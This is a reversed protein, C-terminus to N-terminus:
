GLRHRARCVPARDGALDDLPAPTGAVARALRLLVAHVAAAAGPDAWPAHVAGAGPHATAGLHFVGPRSLGGLALLAPGGPVPVRRRGLRHCAPLRTEAPAGT